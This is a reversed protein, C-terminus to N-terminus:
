STEQVGRLKHQLDGELASPPILIFRTSTTIYSESHSCVEKQAADMENWRRLIENNIEVPTAEGLDSKIHQRARTSFLFFATLPRKPANPDKEKKVRKKKEKGASAVDIAGKTALGANALYQDL